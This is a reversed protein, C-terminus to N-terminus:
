ASDQKVKGRVLDRFETMVEASSFARKPIIAYARPARYPLLFLQADEIIGAFLSWDLGCRVNVEQDVVELRLRGM